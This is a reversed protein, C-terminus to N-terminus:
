FVSRYVLHFRQRSCRDSVLVRQKVLDELVSVSHIEDGVIGGVLNVRWARFAKLARRVGLLFEGQEDLFRPIVIQSKQDVDRSEQTQTSTLHESESPFGNVKLLVPDGDVVRDSLRTHVAFGNDNGGVAGLGLRAVSAKGHGVRHAFLQKSPALHLLSVALDAAVAVVHLVNVVHEGVLHAIAELRAVDLVSKWLNKFAVPQALDAKVIQAVGARTQHM